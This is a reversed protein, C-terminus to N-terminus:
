KKLDFYISWNLFFKKLGIQSPPKLQMLTYIPSSLIAKIRRNKRKQYTKKCEFWKLEEIKEKMRVELEM